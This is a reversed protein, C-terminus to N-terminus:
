AAHEEAQKKAKAPREIAAKRDNEDLEEETNMGRHPGIPYQYPPLRGDAHMNKISKVCVGYRESQANNDLWRTPKKSM